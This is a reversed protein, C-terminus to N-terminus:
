PGGCGGYPGCLRVFYGPIVYSGTSDGRRYDVRLGRISGGYPGTRRALTVVENMRASGPWACPSPSRIVYGAVPHGDLPAGPSLAIEAAMVVRRMVFRDVEVQGEVELPTISTLVVPSHGSTCLATSGGAWVRGVPGVPGAVGVGSGYLAHSRGGFGGALAVAAVALSGAVAVVAATLLLFRRRKLEPFRGSTRM